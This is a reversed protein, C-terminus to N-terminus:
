TRVKSASYSEVSKLYEVYESWGCQTEVNTLDPNSLKNRQGEGISEDEINSIAVYESYLEYLTKRVIAIQREVNESSYLRPFCFELARLKCRPDLVTTISMLLNTEGWYKDFKVKMRAVMDQIFMDNELTKKDLLVKVRSVENLFLNSTPYDSGSIIHTATWFLELVSCVKEAKTWDEAVKLNDIASDNASANDVSITHIKSEIGWDELCRWIANAIELGRRPPPIHVFNLVRKNKLLSKLKKKESEYVNICYAKATNRILGRWEPMGRRQMLNFGEEEVISFPHEHMMIWHAVSEKMKEMDFKGVFLSPCASPDVSSCVFGLQTQLLGDKSKDAKAKLYNACSQLHRHLQTTAATKSKTYMRNPSQGWLIMMKLPRLMRRKALLGRKMLLMPKHELTEEESQMVPSTSDAM